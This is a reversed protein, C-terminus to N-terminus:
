ALKEVLTLYMFVQSSLYGEYVKGLDIVESTFVGPQTFDMTSFWSVPYNMESVLINNFANVYNQTDCDRPSEIPLDVLSGHVSPRRLMGTSTYCITGEFTGSSLDVYDQLIYNQSYTGEVDVTVTAPNTSRNGMFDVAYVNFQYTGTRVPYSLSTATTEISDKPANIDGVIILYHHFDVDQSPNWQLHVIRDNLSYKLGEVDKPPLKQLNATYKLIKNRTQKGDYGIGRVNFVYTIGQQGYFVYSNAKWYHNWEIDKCMYGWTNENIKYPLWGQVAV